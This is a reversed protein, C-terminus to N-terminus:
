RPLCLPGCERRERVIGEPGGKWRRREVVFEHERKDLEIPQGMAVRFQRLVSRPTLLCAVTSCAISELCILIRKENIHARFTKQTIELVASCEFVFM